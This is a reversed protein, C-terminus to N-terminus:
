TIGWHIFCLLPAASAAMDVTFAPCHGTSTPVLTFGLCLVNDSGISISSTSKYSIPGLSTQQFVGCVTTGRLGPPRHGLKRSCEGEQPWPAPQAWKFPEGQGWRNRVGFCQMFETEHTLYKRFWSQAAVISPGLPSPSDPVPRVRHVSSSGERTGEAEEWADQM